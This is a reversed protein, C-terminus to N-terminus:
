IVASMPIFQIPAGRTVSDGAPVVILVDCVVAASLAGSSQQALPELWTEGDRNVVLGRLYETRSGGSREFSEALRM